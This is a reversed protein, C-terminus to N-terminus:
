LNPKPFHKDVFEQVPAMYSEFAKSPAALKGPNVLFADFEDANFARKASQANILFSRTKHEAMLMRVHGAVGLVTDHCAPLTTNFLFRKTQLGGVLIAHTQDATLETASPLASDTTLFVLNSPHPLLSKALPVSPAVQAIAKGDVLEVVTARQPAKDVTTSRTALLAASIGSPNWFVGHVAAVNHPRYQQVNEGFLLSLKGNKHLLADANLLATGHTAGACHSVDSVANLIADKIVELSSTGAIAV